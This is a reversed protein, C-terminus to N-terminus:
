HYRTDNKPILQLNACGRTALAQACLWTPDECLWSRWVTDDAELKWGHLHQRNCDDALCSVCTVATPTPITTPPQPPIFRYVIDFSKGKEQLHEKPLSAQSCRCLFLFAPQADDHLKATLSSLVLMCVCFFLGETNVLLLTFFDSRRPLSYASLFPPLFLPAPSTVLSLPCAPRPFPPPKCARLPTVRRSLEVRASISRPQCTIPQRTPASVERM